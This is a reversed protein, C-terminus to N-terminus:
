YFVQGDPRRDQGRWFLNRVTFDPGYAHYVTKAYEWGTEAHGDGFLYNATSNTHRTFKMRPEWLTNVYIGGTLEYYAGDAYSPYNNGFWTDGETTLWAKSPNMANRKPTEYWYRVGPTGLSPSQGTFSANIAYDCDWAGYCDFTWGYTYRMPGRTAPCSYISAIGPNRVEWKSDVYAVERKRKTYDWLGAGGVYPDIARHWMSVMPNPNGDSGLPAMYGIPNYGKNDGQYSACALGQQRQNGACILTWSNERTKSLAPMLMSVLVGIIAIVVLLEVLTFGPRRIHRAM